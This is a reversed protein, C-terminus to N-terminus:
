LTITSPRSNSFLRPYKNVSWNNAQLFEPCDQNIKEITKMRDMGQLVRVEYGDQGVYSRAVCIGDCVVECKGDTKYIVPNM